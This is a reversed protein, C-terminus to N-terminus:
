PDKKLQDLGKEALALLNEAATNKTKELDDEFVLLLPLSTAFYDIEAEKQSERLAHARMAQFLKEAEQLQGLEILSLGRYYSLESHETVAMAQFDGMENASENFSNVAEAERGLSRLAKGKWYNVDAKAQLTHYAEGLNQPPNMTSKFYDLAVQAQDNDLAKQGLILCAKTYQALVKGEGGEWPHFRRSKLLDLAKENRDTQNYLDALNVMCDDRASVVDINRLLFELRDEASDGLKECLQAYEAFIRADNSDLDLAKLYAQRAAEGDGRVNWYAIGLNRSLTAFAPVSEWIKIADEHRKNDFYLNGLGFAANVDIGPQNIAWELILQDHLRSPFMYDPKLRRACELKVQDDTLYALAYHTLQSKELPNPVQVATVPNEHHLRLVAIADEAFGADAYDYAVDLISQADNRSKNLFEEFDGTAHRAWHDLPDVELLGKLCSQYDRGLKKLLLSKLVYAKNNQRNTDLSSELHNLADEYNQARCDLMALEYYSAARWEYNWTAKYFAAYAEAFRKQFRYVLGLYYHAEGTCPNPHRNTLRQIATEFYKTSQALLGQNLKKRGYALNTRADLPDRRLIEDWYIEPYRTPHRYQDLHEAIFYLEDINELESPMPPETALERKRELEEVKVAQYSLYSEVSLKLSYFDNYEIKRVPYHWPNEPSLDIVEELLVQNNECLVIKASSILRSSVAGLDLSGDDNQILRLAADKTANQVPGIKKYPWWFQSFTKTEYPMLYTFDPQNDTYVGAMLEIYPAPQGTQGVRDTLERDWAWGFKDNGWTWQKKGPAIHKNAVHIFGGGADYDYAGFFDFKTDCVMYSTPVKINKYWTLDNTGQQEEYNIGYYFNNAEPFSSQDRVAHDAVYHVDPPFFSQYNDHVEAAVNAWWLFTQTYPTRNYLRAKLEILSSDPKISIGHMGKLRNLPDHESMWVTKEGNASEEIHLDTPMYTGPRHHQPWNFEVGGSIWPGALGVLAPKIEDQRYFFDYNDNIKDQGLFIRGGIEPLMVLRIYDNELRVSDYSQDEPTDFVKDIFPVPYVKGCSGQYVRKEFFLPNKEPEGLGYTPINISERICINKRKSM